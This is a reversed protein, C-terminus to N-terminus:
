AAQALGIKETQGAGYFRRLAARIPELRRHKAFSAELRYAFKAALDNAVRYRAGLETHEEHLYRVHEFLRARV